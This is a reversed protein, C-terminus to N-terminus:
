KKKKLVELAKSVIADADQGYKTLLAEYAGSEAYQRAGVFAMPTPLEEALVEAVASGLGGYISHEEATVVAGCTGAVRVILERDIPKITHIDVVAASIGQAALKEAAELAKHVMYGTAILAVDSGERLQVGKGVQFDYSEDFIVPATARSLRLYVPGNIEASAFVAKETEIADCVSIITMNPIARVFALDTNAHHSAGDYSDSMGCYTSCIKVNLSDYGILSNIPDGGRTTMFSAFTNVYPILGSAAMGAAMAVMNLEAIGVNFYRDPFSKGFVGSKTSAGLDAELAVVKANEHGLKELAAGFADRIAIKTM